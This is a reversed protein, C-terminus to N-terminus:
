ICLWNKKESFDLLYIQPTLSEIYQQVEWRIYEVLSRGKFIVGTQNRKLRIQNLIVIM